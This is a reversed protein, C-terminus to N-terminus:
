RIPARRGVARPPVGFTRRFRETFHAHSSYGLELALDTLSQGRGVRDYAIGMRIADRTASVSRGGSRRFARALQFRSLGVADALDVLRHPAGPDAALQARVWRVAGAHGPSTREAPGALVAEAAAVVREFFADDDGDQATGALRHLAVVAEASVGHQRVDVPGGVAQHLEPWLSPHLRLYLGERRGQRVPQVRYPVGRRYFVVRAPDVVERGRDHELVYAGGVLLNIVTDLAHEEGGGESSWFRGVSVLPTWRAARHGVTPTDLLRPASAYM